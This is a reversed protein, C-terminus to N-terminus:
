EARLAEVPNVRAARRAPVVGAVCAVAVVILAAAGAINPQSGTIGFLMSQALRGLGFAMALGITGGVVTIRGVHAFILRRVDVGRAGLAMRIGMERVRRAVSYALMAYLGIGALLTALGAFSTSLTTVVRDPSVNNRVQDPMTRLNDVPLNRDAGAVTGGISSLLQQPDGATRVYFTISAVPTQRFPIFFQPPPAARVESYRADRALGVIEIDLTKRDGAGLAMRTGVAHGTLNFKRAFAENVITATV